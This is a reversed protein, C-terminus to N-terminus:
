RADVDCRFSLCKSSLRSDRSVDFISSLRGVGDVWDHLVRLEQHPGRPLAALRDHVAHLIAKAYRERWIDRLLTHARFLLIFLLFVFIDRRM